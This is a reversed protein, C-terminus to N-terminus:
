EDCFNVQKVFNEILKVHPLFLEIPLESIKFWKWGDCREPEMLKPEGIVEEAVFAIQLYHGEKKKCNNFLSSFQFKQASLGTEEELERAAAGVMTENNELHGGPLGWTGSGFVNKRIGLLIMDNKQVIVNIGVHFTQYKTM